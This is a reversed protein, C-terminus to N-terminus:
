FFLFFFVVCLFNFVCSFDFSFKLWFVSEEPVKCLFRYKRPYFRLFVIFKPSICAFNFVCVCDLFDFFVFFFQPLSQISAVFVRLAFLKTVKDRCINELLPFRFKEIEEILLTIPRISIEFSEFLKQRIITRTLVFLKPLFLLFCNQPTPSVSIIVFVYRFCSFLLFM